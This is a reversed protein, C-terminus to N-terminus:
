VEIKEKQLVKDEHKFGARISRKVVATRSSFDKSDVEHIEGDFPAGAESHITKVGFVALSDEISYMFEEYNEVANIYDQNGSSESAGKHYELAESIMNYIEIQKEAFKYVYNETLKSEFSMITQLTKSVDPQLTKLMDIITGNEEHWQDVSKRNAERRAAMEAIHEASPKPVPSPAPQVHRDSDTDPKPLPLGDGGVKVASPVAQQGLPQQGYVGAQVQQQQGYVGTQGLPQQGYAGAQGIPQPVPQGQVGSRGIPKSIPQGIPPTISQGAGEDEGFKLSDGPFGGASTRQIDSEAQNSVAKVNGQSTANGRLRDNNEKIMSAIQAIQGKTANLFQVQADENSAKDLPKFLYLMYQEQTELKKFENSEMCAVLVRSFFMADYAYVDTEELIRQRQMITLMRNIVALFEIEAIDKPGAEMEKWLAELVENAYELQVAIENSGSCKRYQSYIELGTM